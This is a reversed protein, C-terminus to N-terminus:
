PQIRASRADKDIVSMRKRDSSFELVNLLKWHEPQPEDGIQVQMEATNRDIFCV